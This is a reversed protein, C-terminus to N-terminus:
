FKIIPLLATNRPRTESGGSPSGTLLYRQSTSAGNHDIITATTPSTSNLVNAQQANYHQHRKYTDAQTSGFTRTRSFTLSVGTGTATANASLTIATESVIAAITTGGAIGTGSVAMGVTLGSTSNVNTVSTSGNTTNGTITISDTDVGRSDDWGRIFQARLDPLNFTTSGDGAGFTTGIANFLTAYTTRSVAAGNCKLWGEPATSAAYWSVIGAPTVDARSWNSIIWKSTGDSIFVISEGNVLSISTVTSTSGQKQITDSGARQVVLPGRVTPVPLITVSTTGADCATVVVAAGEGATAAAPLTLTLGSVDNNIGTVLHLKTAALTGTGSSGTFTVVDSYGGGQSTSLSAVQDKLWKTRNALNVAAKNLNGGVGGTNLDTTEISYVTTDFNSTETIVGM